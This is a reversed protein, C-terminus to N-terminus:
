GAESSERWQNKFMECGWDRLSRKARVEAAVLSAVANVFWKRQHQDALGVSISVCLEGIQPHNISALQFRQLPHTIDM